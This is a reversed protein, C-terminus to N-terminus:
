KTQADISRRAEMQSDSLMWRVLERIREGASLSGLTTGYGAQIVQKSISLNDGVLQGARTAAVEVDNLYYDILKMEDHDGLAEVLQRLRDEDTHTIDQRMQEAAELISDGGSAPKHSPNACVKAVELLGQLRSPGYISALVHMPLLLALHKGLLYALESESKGTLMDTGVSICPPVVPELAIGSENPRRYLQVEGLGLVDTVRRLVNALMEKGEADVRDKESLGVSKLDKAELWGGLVRYVIAYVEGLVATPGPPILHQQWSGLDLRHKAAVM